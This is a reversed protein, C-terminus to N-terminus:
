SWVIKEYKCTSCEVSECREPFYPLVNGCYECELNFIQDLTDIKNDIILRNSFQNVFNTLVTIIISANNSAALWEIKNSNIQGIILIDDGSVLESAFYWGINNSEDKTILQFNQELITQEVQYFFYNLDVAGKTGIGISKIGRKIGPLKLFNKVENSPLIKPELSIPDFKIEVPESDLARVFDANNVFTVYSRIEGKEELSLPTFFSNIQKQSIEEIKDFEIRLQKENEEPLDSDIIVKPPNSRCLALFDPFRIRIKVETIPAMSQNVILLSYLYNAGYPELKHVIKVKNEQDVYELSVFKEQQPQQTKIDKFVVLGKIGKSDNDESKKNM